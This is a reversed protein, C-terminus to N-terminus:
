IMKQSRGRLNPKRPTTPTRAPGSDSAGVPTPTPVPDDTDGDGCGSTSVDCSLRKPTTWVPGFDGMVKEPVIPTELKNMKNYEDEFEKIEWLGGSPHEPLGERARSEIFM